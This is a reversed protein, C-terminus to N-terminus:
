DVKGGTMLLGMKQETAEEVNLIGTIRGEFMVAIRDSLSLLEELDASVLLIAMGETRLKNLISRISEISGIDVGRTPHSAILLSAPMEVERAVVIKQANGGSLNQTTIKPEAPRIDYKAILEKTYSLVNKKRIFGFKSFENTDIKTAVINEEITFSRNLGARNRDSPIHAVGYKRIKKPTENLLAHGTLEASGGISQRVGTLAEVLENQGNGDVGAIGLVEGKKIDFSVGKVSSIKRDSHVHLNNVSLLVEGKETKIRNINLFVERGVMMNALEPITTDKTNVTDIKKGGRMVTVRDSIEIVEELKHSIFIISKGSDAMVRLIEFLKETEQPTLVASPEDLIIIEAGKFLVKIIEVRQAEGVPIDNVKMDLHVNMNYNQIYHNIKEKAKNVDIRNLSKKPEVGLIINELVSMENVLMFEQHVMGINHQIALKPSLSTYCEKGLQISGDDPEYEGYIIKMLTSKGAGNEGVIAHIEGKYLDFSVDDLAKVNPFTKSVSQIELIKPNDM